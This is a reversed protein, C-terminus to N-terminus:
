VVIFLKELMLWLNKNAPRLYLNEENSKKKKKVCSSRNRKNSRNDYTKVRCVELNSM